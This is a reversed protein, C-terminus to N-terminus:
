SPKFLYFFVLMKFKEVERDDDSLQNRTNLNVYDDSPDFIKMTEELTENEWTAAIELTKKYLEEDFVKDTTKNFINEDSINKESITEENTKEEVIKQAIIDEDHVNQETISQESVNQEIFNENVNNQKDIVEKDTKENDATYNNVDANEAIITTVKAIIFSNKQNFKFCISIIIKM